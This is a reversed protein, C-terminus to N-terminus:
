RSVRPVSHKLDPQHLPPQTGVEVTRTLAMARRDRREQEGQGLDQWWRDVRAASGDLVSRGSLASAAYPVFEPEVVSVNYPNWPHGAALHSLPFAACSTRVPVDSALDLFTVHAPPVLTRSTYSSPAASDDHDAPSCLNAMFPLPFCNVQWYGEVKPVFLKM